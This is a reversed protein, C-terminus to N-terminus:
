RVLCVSYVGTDNVYSCQRRASTKWGSVTVGSFLVCVSLRLFSECRYKDKCEVNDLGVHALCRFNLFFNVAVAM